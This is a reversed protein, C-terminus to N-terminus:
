RLQSRADTDATRRGGWHAIASLFVTSRNAGPVAAGDKGSLNHWYEIGIGLEVVRPRLVLASGVDLKLQPRM